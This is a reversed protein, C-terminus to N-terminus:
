IDAQYFVLKKSNYMNKKNAALKATSKNIIFFM